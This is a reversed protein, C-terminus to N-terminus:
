WYYDRYRDPKRGHPSIRKNEIIRGPNKELLHYAYGLGGNRILHDKVKRMHPTRALFGHTDSAMCTILDNELLVQSTEWIRKGFRGLISGKNMQTYCGNLIWEYVIEPFDQVCFYREPHAILPTKNEKLVKKLCEKIWVPEAEFPFEVLYYDTHNMGILRQNRIKEGMDESAFIEMGELIVLPIQEQKIAIKLERFKEHLQRSYYNEFRGMQNSHPTAVMIDVGSDVAMAAIELSDQIDRAGDDVGPLIHAHLDIMAVRELYINKCSCIKDKHAM